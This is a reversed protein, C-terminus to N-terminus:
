RGSEQVLKNAILKEDVPPSLERAKAGDGSISQSAPSYITTKAVNGRATEGASFQQANGAAVIAMAILLVAGLRKSWLYIRDSRASKM